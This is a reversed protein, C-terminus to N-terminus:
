PQHRRVQLWRRWILDWCRLRGYGALWGAHLEDRGQPAHGEVVLLGGEKLKERLLLQRGQQRGGQAVQEDVGGVARRAVEQGHEVREVLGVGQEHEEDLAVVQGGAAAGEGLVEVPELALPGEGGLDGAGGGAGGGDDPVGELEAGGVDPPVEGDHDADGVELPLEVLAVLHIRGAGQQAGGVGGQRRVRGPPVLDQVVVPPEQPVDVRADVGGVVEGQQGEVQGVEEVVGFVVVGEQPHDPRAHAPHGARVVGGDLGQAVLGRALAGRRAGGGEERRAVHAGLDEGAQRDEQGRADEGELEELPPVGGVERLLQRAPGGLAQVQGRGGYGPRRAGGGHGALRYGRAPAGACTVLVLILLVLLGERLTRGDGLGRQQGYVGDARGLVRLQAGDAPVVDGCGRRALRAHDVAVRAHVPPHATHVGPLLGEHGVLLAFPLAALGSASDRPPPYKSPSFPQPPDHYLPLSLVPLRRRGVQTKRDITSAYRAANQIKSIIWPNAKTRSWSILDRVWKQSDCM